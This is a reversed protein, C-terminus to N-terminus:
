VELYNKINYYCIDSVLNGLSEVSGFYLQDEYLSAVYSCLIRRFFDHRSLSLVSRSDTLMGLFEGFLGTQTLTKMQSMIGDLNDNFWWAAGYKMTSHPTQYNNCLTALKYNDVPNINYMVIDPLKEGVSNFMAVFYDVDVSNGISDFGSDPGLKNFSRENTNRVPGVHIQVKIAHKNYLKLLEVILYSWLSVIEEENLKQLLSKEFLEKALGYECNSFKLENIGHDSLICGVSKFYMLRNELCKLYDDLNAIKTKTANELMEVNKNNDNFILFKDPRFTPLVKCSLESSAIEKHFELDDEPSDTTCLVEVNSKEIFDKTNFNGSNLKENAKSFIDKANDKNITANIDFYEKLEMQAWVLVNSGIAKEMTKCFYEFKEYDEADGTIYKEKVGLNRMLRWKYHDYSLWADTISRFKYNKAIEEVSLHNHYDIIPLDRAYENYLKTALDSKLLFNDNM